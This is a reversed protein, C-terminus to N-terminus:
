FLSMHEQPCIDMLSPDGQAPRMMIFPRTMSSNTRSGDLRRGATKMQCCHQSLSSVPRRAFSGHATIKMKTRPITQPWPIGKAFAKTPCSSLFAQFSSAM